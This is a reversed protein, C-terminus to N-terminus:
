PYVMVGRPERICVREFFTEETFKLSVNDLRIDPVCQHLLFPAVAVGSAWGFRLAFSGAVIKRDDTKLRAAIRGLLDGFLGEAPNRLAQGPIWGDDSLMGFEVYWNPHLRRLKDYVHVIPSLPETRLSSV